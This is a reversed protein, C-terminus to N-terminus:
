VSNDFIEEVDIIESIPIKTGDSIIISGLYEDIKKIKGEATVYAGGSKKNDPVFYTIRIRADAKRSELDVIEANLREIEYEDLEIRKTTLRATEKVVRDYGVLAAYPAFQAAREYNSMHKRSQSVHHGLYLIKEYRERM